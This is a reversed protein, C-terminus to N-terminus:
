GEQPLARRNPLGLRSLTAFASLKDQVACLAEFGPVATRVGRAALRAPFAALVAVQEQTPLLM